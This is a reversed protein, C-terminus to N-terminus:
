KFQWYDLTYGKGDFIFYLNHKGKITSLLETTIEKYDESKAPDIKTPDIKVYGVVDGDPKDLRIQIAGSIGPANAAVTFTKAGKEGFDVGKLAIWDGTDIDSVAMNGSGYYRSAMSCAITNVGGMTAMTEAETKEYPNLNKFQSVGEKTATIPSISGDTNVTVKDIHTSRYGGQIGLESELIQSHYAIYWQDNFKFMCHHNNGYCGFFSGPNKLISGQLKFPGLPKDSTMYCINASEIGLKGVDEPTVNWNSCYSYYYTNGIKNIGSDEFLYPIENKVPDGALSIMDDGLQVMRGTGPNKYQENPVGGGFYIYAKGDNDMLVAPDFLWAVDSCNPTQRSILAKHIPDRFPGTPSDSTLVGIGSAGNAFYIFFQTKGNIKKYTVAPAWSNNGWKAAGEYGAAKISGHDTWNVLDDSSIVNLKNIKGYGNNIVNNDSDYEIVDNTMYIYVRGEYVIAYPDAGFRQTMLPNNFEIDKLTDALKIGKFKAELETKLVQSKQVIKDKKNDASKTEGVSEKDQSKMTNADKKTNDTGKCGSLSIILILILLTIGTVKRSCRM